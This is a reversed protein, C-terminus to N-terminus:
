ILKQLFARSVHSVVRKAECALREVVIRDRHKHGEGGVPALCGNNWAIRRFDLCGYLCGAFVPSNDLSKKTESPVPPSHM